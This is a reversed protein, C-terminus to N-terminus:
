PEPRHERIDINGANLGVRSFQRMAEVIAAAKTPAEVTGLPHSLYSSGKARVASSRKGVDWKM